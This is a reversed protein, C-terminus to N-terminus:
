DKRLALLAQVGAYDFEEIRARLQGGLAADSEAVRSALTLLLDFEARECAARLESVLGAPLRSLAEASPPTPVPPATAHAPGPDARREYIFDVGAVRKMTELLEHAKFPKGLFADAGAALAERQQEALVGASIAILKVAQGHARRIRRAAGCGDLVPMRMDLLVLHPKWAACQAVAFAGNAASRVEFGLPELLEELLKRNAPEDDVVLVRCPGCSPLLRLAHPAQREREQLETAPALKLPLSFRFVSGVDVASTVTLEGGMLRVFEHSISLGLGTGGPVQRGAAAQFFPEFLRPLEEDSIGPGTDEIELFIRCVEATAEALRVRLTVAGGGPTFKLANGLLNILVQRLKTQDGIVARPVAGQQEFRLKLQKAQARQGVMQELDELLGPLDFPAPNFTVRGSEIRAMELIDNIISLLHEGSRTINKLQDQQRASLGADRMLLQSFGLVANMPTRIEHSMNALFTSKAQNAADAADKAAQLAEAARKQGTIDMILGVTGRSPDEPDLARGTLLTWFTSGDKRRLLLEGAFTEGRAAAAAIDAGTQEWDQETVFFGRTPQGLMEAVPTGFMEALRKNCREITRNRVLLIGTSAADFVAQLQENAERLSDTLSALRATRERVREELRQNLAQLDAEARKRATIDRDMGRYGLLQGDAGLVPVGSTELVVLSGNRHRNLNELASFPQRQSVAEAFASAIRRAEESPMLEFPTLGLIEEPAYGLLDKVKPSSYTYRGKADVEWIWDFSAEVLSRFKEESHRLRVEAEKRGTTDQFFVLAGPQGDVTFPVAAFEALFETGDLRLCREEAMPVPERRENLQQIRAQVQTRFTPHFRELVLEGLLRGPSPAGFIRAAAPNVYAFRGGTQLLIGIQASEVLTRFQEESKRLRAEAELRVIAHAAETAITELGTRVVPAVDDLTHSAANLCGIIRGENHLPIVALFRLGEQREASSPATEAGLYAGFYPVGTKVLRVKTSEADLEAVERIFDPGLGRHARLELRGTRENFLYFGGSDLRSAELARELGLRLGEELETVAALEVAMAHQVRNLEEVQKHETIDFVVGVMRVARRQEDFLHRGHSALWHLSGDPWFVRYEQRVPTGNQRGEDNRQLVTPLDEPHVCATFAERTGPFTGPAFGFLAEVEESWVLKGSLLDSDWTGMRAAGLALSRRLESERLAEEAQKREHINRFNIVIADIGPVGILNTFVSEIWIWGGDHHRFRYAETRVGSPNQLLAGLTAQVRPLDEPHTSASPDVSSLAAGEFGFMRRASPSAFTMAGQQSVLVVGDPAREILARFRRESQELETEARKRETIDQVTGFRRMPRGAGDKELDARQHLWRIQGDPRCIRYDVESREGHQDAERGRQRVRERDEPHVLQFFSQATGDFGGPALGFLRCTEDSWELRGGSGIEAAWSGIHGFAQAKALMEQSRRLAEAAQKRETIDQTTGRLGIIQGQADRLPEGRSTVWRQTGDTRIVEADCEYPAGTELTRRKAAELLAWSEPTFYQRVEVLDAPGLEPDRGYLRYIEPSWVTRGSRSESEWNGIRALRQAELLAAEGRRVEEEARRRGTIDQFTGMVYAREGEQLRGLGRVEVWLHMGTVTTVGAEITFPTGATWAAQLAEQLAPICDADYFKLGEQLGPQYDLPLGLVEHVGETWYLYNTEPSVKWAGIRGIKEAERRFLLSEQLVAAARKRATIDHCVCFVLRQGGLEAASNSLEVEFTSGDKRRHRTEFCDGEPGLTRLAELVQERTWQYDWEWVHLQRVEETPYGLMVAFQRNAEFVRGQMDLVVIGDRSGEILLRRRQAEFELQQEAQKRETIDQFAGRLKIVRGNERVPQGITHVWKRVGKASVLELELDYPTGQSVAEEIAAEIRARSEGQYFSLGLARNTVQVPDVDHIRAIEETWRGEGTAVEFEWGGVKAVRGMERLLTENDRLAAEAQKRASIDSYAIVVGVDPLPVPAATVSMWTTQDPSKVLGMEVNEVLRQERLARVSAFEEAPMPTGDPRIIQWEAGGIQRRQQEGTPVALIVEARRNSEIIRGQRDAVSIGLPLADFLTRYKILAAERESVDVIFGELFLLSGDAATVGRGREWVMKIRGDAARIRYNLEFPQGAQVGQQVGEWVLEQDEPLILSGYDPRHGMLESAPYGTLAGCGESVFVLPWEPVNQCRYAMGPLNALLTALQRESERLAAEAQKRGTVDQVFGHWLVSGDPERRPVSHGEIWIEGRKPHQARFSGHWPALTRASELIGAELGERDAPHVRALIPSFDDRVEAPSLGYLEQIAPTAFPMAASGDPRLRFSCILGPVSAAVKALQDQLEFQLRLRGEAERRETITAHSVVAGGREDALPTATLQFWRRVTASHCPYELSFAAQRRELVALIGDHAAQANEAGEGECQRCVALYNVGVSSTPPSPQANLTSPPAPNEAAFRQWAANVAVIVGSGDLVAIHDAVSHFIGEARAQSARLAAEAQQRETIDVALVVIREVAGGVGPVPSYHHRLWRAGWREEHVVSAGTRVVEAMWARRVAALERPVLEFLSRGVCDAVPRGFRAAFGANGEVIEGAPTMLFLSEPVADFLARLSQQSRRVAAEAQRGATIDVLTSQMGVVRGAADTLPRSNNLVSIVTGDKRRLKHEYNVLRGGALLRQHAPLVVVADADVDAMSLSLLEKRSYGLLDLGAQNCDVFRKAVDFVFIAAVSEDFIGRFKEASAALAQASRRIERFYRDLALGLVLATSTVYFWGKGTQLLEQWRPSPVLLTLASDSCVIWLSGALAYWLAIKVASVRTPLRLRSPAPAPPPPPHNV